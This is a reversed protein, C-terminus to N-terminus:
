PGKEFKPISDVLKNTFNRLAFNISKTMQRKSKTKGRFVFSILASRLLTALRGYQMMAEPLRELIHEDGPSEAKNIKAIMQGIIVQARLCHFFALVLGEDDFGLGSQTVKPTEQLCALVQRANRHEHSIRLRFHSDIIIDLDSLLQACQRMRYEREANTLALRRANWGNIGATVVAFTGALVASLLTAFAALAAMEGAKLNTVDM